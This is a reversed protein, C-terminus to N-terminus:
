GAPGPAHRALGHRLALGLLPLAVATCAFVARVSAHDVVWAALSVGIAQGAFLSVVFLSIGTARREPAMQTAHLQLTSHLMFFGLGALLCAPMAWAWQPSLALLAAGLGIASAGGIAQRRSGLAQALRGALPAYALGAAAYLAMVAGAQALSLGFRDHLFTPVFALTSFVLAGELGVLVVVWRAWRIRLVEVFGGLAQRVGGQQAALHAPLNGTRLAARLLAVAVAAFGCALTAFVARWGLAEALVGGIWLGAMMGMNTALMLQALTAQRREFAVTDGILALSLPVIGGSAAGALVRAGTMAPLTPALMVAVNAVAALGCAAAMVRLRGHRDGLPGVLFQVVGYALAFASVTQAAAGASTAFDRALIPLLSDCARMSALSSFSALCVVLLPLAPPSFTAPSAPDAAPGPPSSDPATM